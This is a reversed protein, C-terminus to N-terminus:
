AWNICYDNKRKTFPTKKEDKGGEKTSYNMINRGEPYTREKPPLVYLQYM